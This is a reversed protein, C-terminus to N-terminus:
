RIKRSTVQAANEDDETDFSMGDPTSVQGTASLHIRLALNNRSNANRLAEELDVKGAQHLDYLAQDFSQMGQETTQEMVETLKSIEGKQILESMYPSNLLIELAPVRKGDVGLILRQSIIARLNLSLDTLLQNHATEPFFNLIRDLTQSANNAHLTSLCLHGTEAYSMAHQMTEHDRIEGILIVDPSERMANKLANAYSLTDIGVERQDVISNINKHIFELPDEITLIHGTQQRNRYDIMSALTTTKGSGTAGVVLILGRPEMVLKKLIPLLNLEELSPITSKIYRIVMAHEGRQRYINVRFRGINQVSIALNMEMTAEFQRIQEDNMLSYALKKVVGPELSKHGVPATKGEIKINVPAGTSFFLDSASKDVMLKLYASIDFM